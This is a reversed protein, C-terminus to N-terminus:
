PTASAAAESAKALDEAAAEATAEDVAVGRLFTGLAAASIGPTRDQLERWAKGAEELRGAGKVSRWAGEPDAEFLEPDALSDM